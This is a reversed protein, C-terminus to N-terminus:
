KNLLTWTDGTPFPDPNAPDQPGRQVNVPFFARSIPAKSVYMGSCGDSPLSVRGSAHGAKRLANRTVYSGDDSAIWITISSANISPGSLVPKRNMDM